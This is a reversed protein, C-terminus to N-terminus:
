LAGKDSPLSPRSFVARGRSVRGSRDGSEVRAV